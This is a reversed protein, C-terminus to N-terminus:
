NTTTQFIGGTIDQLNAELSNPRPLTNLGMGTITVTEVSKIYKLTMKVLRFLM